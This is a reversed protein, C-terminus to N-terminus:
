KWTDRQVKLTPKESHCFSEFSSAYLLSAEVAMKPAQLTTALDLGSSVTAAIYNDAVLPEEM